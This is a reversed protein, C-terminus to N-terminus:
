NTHCHFSNVLNIKAAIPRIVTVTVVGQKVRFSNNTSDSSVRPSNDKLHKIYKYRTLSDTIIFRTGGFM